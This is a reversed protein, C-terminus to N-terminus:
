FDHNKELSFRPVLLRVTWFGAPTYRRGPPFAAGLPDLRLTLTEGSAGGLLPGLLLLLPLPAMRCRQAAAPRSARVPDVHIIKDDQSTYM